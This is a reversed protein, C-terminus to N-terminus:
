KTAKDWGPGLLEDLYKRQGQDGAMAAKVIARTSAAIPQEPAGDLQPVPSPPDLLTARRSKKGRRGGEVQEM